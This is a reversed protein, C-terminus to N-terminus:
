RFFAAFMWENDQMVEGSYTDEVGCTVDAASTSNVKVCVNGYAKYSILRRGSGVGCYNTDPMATTFNVTYDGTGNDTISSVNGSGRIAVTGIGNFNVWARASYSPASGSATSLAAVSVTGSLTLSGSTTVTGSLTLGSATGTGTVSTVTGAGAAAWTGDGRWFTSASASTGSNLNTVPLNGSVHTTLAIKGWSPATSVGGSILVNGTAVDALKSLATTTSAYLLDGVAYSSQGTGGSTAVLTASLSTASGSINAGLTTGNFTLVSGTTLVKSANLYPVGNATGGSLIPNSSFTKTGAATQSSVLDMYSSGPVYAAAWVSGATWVKMASDVSNFYLAGTILANGDNDVTPETSKSGLYRDDFSDYSALTADRASEAATKANAASTASTTANTASTSASTASASANSAQTTATTASAAANTASTSANTAQTTALTVQAAGNTTALAAQTTATSASTAANTASTSANSAQTTATSASSSASSASSAAATASTAANTASTTASAAGTIIAAIYAAPTTSSSIDVKVSRAVQENLQQIQITTRDLADNITSPYFGGQNTLDLTQTYGLSSTLTILFGSAPATLMTVTGGPNSNQNANLSVTYDTGLTLTSEVGTLNTRVVTVDATAFVKFSFPFATTSGNGTYPGAIRTSSNITM